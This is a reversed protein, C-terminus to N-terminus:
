NWPLQSRYQNIMISMGPQFAAYLLRQIKWWYFFLAIFLFVSWFPGTESSAGSHGGRGTLYSLRGSTTM